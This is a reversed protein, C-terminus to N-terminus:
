PVLKLNQDNYYSLSGGYVQNKTDECSASAKGFMHGLSEWAALATKMVYHM